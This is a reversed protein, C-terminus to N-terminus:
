RALELIEASAAVAVVFPDSARAVVDCEACRTSGARNVFIYHATGCKACIVAESTVLGTAGRLRYRDITM